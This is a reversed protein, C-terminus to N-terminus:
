LNEGLLRFFVEMDRLLLYRVSCTGRPRRWCTAYDGRCLGRVCPQTQVHTHTAPYLAGFGRCLRARVPVYVCALMCLFVCACARTRVPVCARVCACVRACTCACVYVCACACACVCVRVCVGLWVCWNGEIEVIFNEISILLAGAVDDGREAQIQM